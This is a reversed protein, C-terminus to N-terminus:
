LLQERIKNLDKEDDIDPLQPLLYFSLDHNKCVSLTQELVRSTSWSIGVFLEPCSRKMALLYYGGDDAPGIVVDHRALRNFAETIHAAKLEFCDTGIIAAKEYGKSFVHSFANKMREGLDDGSQVQKGYLGNQWGDNEEIFDSYFVLKDVVLQETIGATHELLRGYVSFATDHGATAALRTKVSGHILNRAFILLVDKM